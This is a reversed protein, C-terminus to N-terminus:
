CWLIITSRGRNFCDTNFKWIPSCSLLGEALCLESTSSWSVLREWKCTCKLCSLGIKSAWEDGASSDQFDFRTVVSPCAQKHQHTNNDLGCLLCVKLSWRPTRTHPTVMAQQQAVRPMLQWHHCLRERVVQSGVILCQPCYAKQKYLRIADSERAREKRKESTITYAVLVLSARKTARMIM